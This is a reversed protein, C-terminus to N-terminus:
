EKTKFIKFDIISFDETKIELMYDHGLDAEYFAGDVEREQMYMLKANQSLSSYDKEADSFIKRAKELTNLINKGM